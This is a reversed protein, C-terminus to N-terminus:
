PGKQNREDLEKKPEAPAQETGAIDLPAYQSVAPHECAGCVPCPEGPVLTARAHLLYEQQLLREKDDLQSKVRRYLDRLAALEGERATLQVQLKERRAAQRDIQTLQQERQAQLQQLQELRGKR